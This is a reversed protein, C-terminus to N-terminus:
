SESYGTGRNVYVQAHGGVAGDTTMDLWVEAWGKPWKGVLNFQPDNGTSEWRDDDLRRLDHLPEIAPQYSRRALLEPLGRLGRYVPPLLGHKLRGYPSLLRWGLSRTIRHLQRESEELRHERERLQNELGAIQSSFLEASRAAEADLRCRERDAAALQQT